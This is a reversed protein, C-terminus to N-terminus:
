QHKGSEDRGATAAAKALELKEVFDALLTERVPSPRSMMWRIKKQLEEDERFAADTPVIAEEAALFKKFYAIMETILFPSQQKSLKRGNRRWVFDRVTSVSYFKANAKGQFFPVKNERLYDTACRVTWGMIEAIERATLLFCLSINTPLSTNKSLLVAALRLREAYEPTPDLYRQNTGAGIRVLLGKNYLNQIQYPTLNLTTCIGSFSLWRQPLDAM